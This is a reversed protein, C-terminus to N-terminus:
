MLRPPPPPPHPPPPTLCFAALPPPPPTLLLSCPPPPPPPPPPLCFAALPPPPPPPPLCFAALQVVLKRTSMACWMQNKLWKLARHIRLLAQPNDSSSVIGEEKCAFLGYYHQDLKHIANVEGQVHKWRAFGADRVATSFLGALSVQGTEYIHKQMLAAVPEPKQMDWEIVPKLDTPDSSFVDGVHFELPIQRTHCYCFLVM